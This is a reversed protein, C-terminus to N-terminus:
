SQLESTHEESRIEDDAHGGIFQRLRSFTFSRNNREDLSHFDYLMYLKDIFDNRLCIHIFKFCPVIQLEILHKYTIVPFTRSFPIFKFPLKLLNTHLDHIKWICCM